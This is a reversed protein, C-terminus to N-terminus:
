SVIINIWDLYHCFAFILQLMTSFALLLGSQLSPDFSSIPSSTGTRSAQWSAHWTGGGWRLRQRIGASSFLEHTDIANSGLFSSTPPTASSARGLLSTFVPEFASRTALVRAGEVDVAVRVIALDPNHEIARRVAEDLTLALRGLAPAPAVIGGGSSQQAFLNGTLAVAAVAAATVLRILHTRSM